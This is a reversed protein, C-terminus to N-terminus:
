DRVLGSKVEDGQQQFPQQQKRVTLWERPDVDAGGEAVSLRHQDQHYIVRGLVDGTERVRLRECQPRIRLQASRGNAFSRTFWHFVRWQWRGPGVSVSVKENAIYFGAVVGHSCDQYYLQLAAPDHLHCSANPVTVDFHPDERLLRRPRAFRVQLRHIRDEVLKWYCFRQGVYQLLMDARHSSYLVCVLIDGNVSRVSHLPISEEQCFTAIADCAQDPVVRLGRLEFNRMIHRGTFPQGLWDQLMTESGSTVFEVLVDAISLPLPCPPLRLMCIVIGSAKRRIDRVNPSFVVTTPYLNLLTSREALSVDTRVTRDHRLLSFGVDLYAFQTFSAAQGTPAM